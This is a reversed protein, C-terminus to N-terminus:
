SSRDSCADTHLSGPFDHGLLFALRLTIMARRVSTLSARAQAQGPKRRFGEPRPCLGSLSLGTALHPLQSFSLKRSDLM